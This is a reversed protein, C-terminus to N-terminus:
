CAPAPADEVYIPGEGPLQSAACLATRVKPLIAMQINTAFNKQCSARGKVSEATWSSWRNGLSRSQTRPSHALM